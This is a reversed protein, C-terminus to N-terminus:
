IREISSPKPFEDKFWSQLEPELCVRNDTSMLDPKGMKKWDEIDYIKVDERYTSRLPALNGYVSRFLIPKQSYYVEDILDLFKEKNLMMPYHVEFSLPNKVGKSKLYELTEEMAWYYYGSKTKHNKIREELTGINYNPIHKAKKLFIFDDNMLIFDDSLDKKLCALRIKHIANLLKHKGLDNAEIYEYRRLDFFKPMAGCVFIRGYEELHKEVSRVSYRIENDYWKSGTGLIYLIDPKKRM